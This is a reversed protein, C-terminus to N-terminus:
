LCIHRESGDSSNLSRDDRQIVLSASFMKGIGREKDAGGESAKLPASVVAIIGDAGGASIAEPTWRRLKLVLTGGARDNDDRQGVFQAM